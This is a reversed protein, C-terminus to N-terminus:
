GNAPECSDNRDLVRGGLACQPQQRSPLNGVKLVGQGDCVVVVGEGALVDGQRAGEVQIHLLMGHLFHVSGKARDVHHYCATCSRGSLQSDSPSFSVSVLTIHPLTRVITSDELWGVGLLATPIAAAVSWVTIVQNLVQQIPRLNVVIPDM